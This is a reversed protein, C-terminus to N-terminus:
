NGPVDVVRSYHYSQRAYDKETLGDAANRRIMGADSLVSVSLEVGSLRGAAIEDATFTGLEAGQVDIGNGKLRFEGSGSSSELVVRATEVRASDSGVGERTVEVLFTATVQHVNECIFNEEQDVESEFSSFATDLDEEGLLKEFTEDPNILKRYFVYTSTDNDGSGGEIPDQFRMRYAVCSVDGGADASQGIQGNYRDTAATFFTFAAVNANSSGRVVKPLDADADMAVYLWEMNDGRRSVLSEFDKAMTDILVKAQRSARLQSRSRTWTDTAVGTITVLVTIIVATIGMSVMLEILTFGSKRTKPPCTKM